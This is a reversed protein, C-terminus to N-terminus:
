VNLGVLFIIGALLFIHLFITWFSLLRSLFRDSGYFMFSFFYNVIFILIGGLPLFFMHWWDGVLDVGFVINYHLFIQGADPHINAIIYWWSAIQALIAGIAPFLIWRDRLYLKPSYFM